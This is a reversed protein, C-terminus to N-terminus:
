KTTILLVYLCYNLMRLNFREHSYSTLKAWGHSVAHKKVSFLILGIIKLNTSIRTVPIYSRLSLFGPNCTKKGKSRFESLVYGITNPGLFRLFVYDIWITLKSPMEKAELEVTHFRPTKEKPDVKPNSRPSMDKAKCTFCTDQVAMKWRCLITFIYICATEIPHQFDLGHM